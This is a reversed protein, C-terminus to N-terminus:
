WGIDFIFNLSMDEAKIAISKIHESPNHIITAHGSDSHQIYLAETYIDNNFWVRHKTYYM